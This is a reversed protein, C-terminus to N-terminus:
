KKGVAPSSSPSGATGEYQSATGAGVDGLKVQHPLPRGTATRVATAVDPLYGYHSNILVGAMLACVPVAVISTTRRWWPAARWGFGAVALALFVSGAWVYFSAPFPDNIAGTVKVVAATAVMAGAATTLAWPLRVYRWWADRWGIAVLLAVIGAGVVAGPFPGSTLSLALVVPDRRDV